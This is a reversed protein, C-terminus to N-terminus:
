RHRPTYTATAQTYIATIRDQEAAPGRIQLVHFRGDIVRVQNLALVTAGHTTKWTYRGEAWHQSTGITIEREGSATGWAAQRYDDLEREIRQYALPDRGHGPGHESSRASTVIMTFEGHTFRVQGGRGAHRSWGAPVAITFGARDQHLRFGPVPTASASPRVAPATASGPTASAGARPRAATPAGVTGHVIWLGGATLALPVTVATILVPRRSRSRRRAAHQARHRVAPPRPRRWPMLPGRHRLVPLRGAAGIPQEVAIPPRAPEPASRLLSGLWGEVEAPTPRQEPDTHLLAEIVPRLPGADEAYAPPEACVMEVLEHADDEPYPAHAHVTRFLLAGLAWLDTAPTIEPALQWVPHAMAAQEPAWRETVAGVMILRAQRAREAERAGVPRAYAFATPAPSPTPSAPPAAAARASAPCAPANHRADRQADARLAETGAGAGPAAVRGTAPARGATAAAASKGSQRDPPSETVPAAHEAAVPGYGCLIDQVIGHALGTLTVGGDGSIWVSHATINLHALGLHHLPRLANLIGHGIEAARYLTLPGDALLAALPRGDLLEGAIWIAGDATFVDFDQARRPHDPLAIVTRAATLAQAVATIEPADVGHPAADGDPVLIEPLPLSELVIEQGTYTDEARLPTVQLRQADPLTPLQYRNHLLATAPAPPTEASRRRRRTPAARLAPRAAFM